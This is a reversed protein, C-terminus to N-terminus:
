RSTDEGGTRKLPAAQAEALAIKGELIEATRDFGAALEPLGRRRAAESLALAWGHAKTRAWSPEAETRDDCTECLAACSTESEEAVRDAGKLVHHMTVPEYTRCWECRNGFWERARKMVAFRLDRVTPLRELRRARKTPGGTPPPFALGSKDIRGLPVADPRLEARGRPPATEMKELRALLRQAQDRRGPWDSGTCATAFNRLEELLSPPLAFITM